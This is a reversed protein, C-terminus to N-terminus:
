LVRERSIGEVVRLYNQGQRDDYIATAVRFEVAEGLWDRSGQDDPAISDSAPWEYVTIQRLPDVNKLKRRTEVIVRLEQMKYGVCQLLALWQLTPCCKATGLCKFLYLNHEFDVNELTLSRLQPLLELAPLLHALNRSNRPDRDPNPQGSM